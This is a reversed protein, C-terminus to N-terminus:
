INSKIESAQNGNGYVTKYPPSSPFNDNGIRSSESPKQTATIILNVVTLPLRSLSYRDYCGTMELVLPLGDNSWFRPYQCSSNYENSFEFDLYRRNSKWLASNEYLSFPTSTNLFGKFGVLDGLRGDSGDCRPFPM